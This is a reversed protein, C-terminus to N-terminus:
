QMRVDKLLFPMISGTILSPLGIALWLPAHLAHLSLILFIGITAGLLTKQVFYAPNRLLKGKLLLKTSFWGVELM